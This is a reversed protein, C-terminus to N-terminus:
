SLSGESSEASSTIGTRRIKFGTCNNFAGNLIMLEKLSSAKVLAIKEKCLWFMSNSLVQSITIENLQVVAKPIANLSHSLM